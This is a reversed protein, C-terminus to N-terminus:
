SRTDLLRCYERLSARAVEAAREVREGVSDGEAGETGSQSAAARLAEARMAQVAARWSGANAPSENASEAISALARCAKAFAASGAPTQAVRELTAFTEEISRLM